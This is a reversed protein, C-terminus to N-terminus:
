AVPNSGRSGTQSVPMQLRHEANSLFDDLVRAANQEIGDMKEIVDSWDEVGLFYALRRQAETDKRLENTSSKCSLHDVSALYDGEPMEAGAFAHIRFLLNKVEQLRQDLHMGQRPQAADHWQELSEKLLELIAMWDRPTWLEQAFQVISSALKKDGVIPRMTRIELRDAISAASFLAAFDRMGIALQSRGQLPGWRFLTEYIRDGRVTSQIQHLVSQGLKDYVHQAMLGSDTVSQSDDYVLLLQLQDRFNLNRAGYQGIAFIAFRNALSPHRSGAGNSQDATWFSTTLRAVIADAV